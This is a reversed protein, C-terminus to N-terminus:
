SENIEYNNPTQLTVYIHTNTYSVLINLTAYIAAYMVIKARGGSRVRLWLSKTWRVQKSNRFWNNNDVPQSSGCSSIQVLGRHMQGKAKGCCMDGKPTIEFTKVQDGREGREIMWVHRHNRTLAASTLWSIFDQQRTHAQFFCHRFLVPTKVRSGKSLSTSKM